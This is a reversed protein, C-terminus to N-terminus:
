TPTKPLYSTHNEMFKITITTAALSALYIWSIYGIAKSLAYPTNVTAREQEDDDDDQERSSSPVVTELKLLKEITRGLTSELIDVVEPCECAVFTVGVISFFSISFVKWFVLDNAGQQVLLKESYQYNHDTNQMTMKYTFLYNSLSLVVYLLIFLLPPTTDFSIEGFQFKDNGANKYSYFFFTVFCFFLGTILAILWISVRFM